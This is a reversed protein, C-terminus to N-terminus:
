TGAAPPKPLVKAVAALLAAVLLALAGWFIPGGKLAELYRGSPAAKDAPGLTARNKTAALLRSSILSLDYRPAKAEKHDYILAVGETAPSRFVLRTVPYIAKAEGLTLPANDGNDTEIWITDTRPQATFEFVRTGPDEVEPTRRWDGNALTLEYTGGDAGQVNEYIRVSRQFLAVRTSLIVRQIPLRANPLAVRWRGVSPRKADPSAEPTLALARALDPQEILYPVQAGDHILRVDSFDSRARSLVDPDLELEQVGPQAIEVARRAKWGATDIPAAKFMDPIQLGLDADPPRSGPILEVTGLAVANAKAQRMDDAFAALDYRPAAVRPNGTLVAYEGAPDALFLLETKAQQAQVGSIALPPSDGNHVHVLVESDPPSATVPVQLSARAAQGDLAVRYVTGEGITRERLIGGSMERVTVTVRRMFLAEPVDLDLRTLPIKRGPLTLTLVTEGAFEDRRELKAPVEM